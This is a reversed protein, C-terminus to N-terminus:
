VWREMKKDFICPVYTSMFMDVLLPFQMLVFLAVPVSALCIVPIIIWSYQEVTCSTATGKMWKEGEKKLDIHNKTFLERPTLGNNNSYEKFRPVVISEVEKFWQLERQMQLAAGPIRNLLISAGTLIGAMHLMINGEENVWTTMNKKIALGYILSFIRAQRHLVAFSFISTNDVRRSWVLEPNAKVLGFIFDFNGKEISRFIADYVKRKRREETNSISVEKCMHVLLEHSKADVLKFGYLDKIGSFNLLNLVLEHFLALVKQRRELSRPHDAGNLHGNVGHGKKFGSGIIKIQNSRSKEVDQINLRIEQTARAPQIYICYKYIWRKWFVLEVRSPFANPMDALAYLPSQGAKSPALALHPCKRILDLAIDLSRNYIAWTCLTAGNGAKEQMLDELPTLSYLYRALETHGIFIAQNAPIDLDSSKISVLNKNKGVMCATMRYNGACIAPVLATDGHTDKVVLDEESMVDMLKEVIREHGARVALHLGTEGLNTIKASRADPQRELFEEAANWNGTKLAERLAEYQVYDVNGNEGSGSDADTPVVYKKALTDWAIKASSIQIIKSITDPGCSIQIVHLATSNKMSWAKFAAEDDELSPAETTAEIVDWLDHAMLYTKVRVTWAVYNDKELVQLIVALTNWAIKASNIEIIMALAYQGCSVKLMHLATSNKESWANFVAEGDEQKPPETTAEITDWLDHAMLYTKVQVSWAMYNDKDLVQLVPASLGGKIEM